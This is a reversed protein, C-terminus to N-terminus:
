IGLPQWVYPFLKGAQEPTLEAGALQAARALVPDRGAALDAATPLVVEDPTVGVHEISKGDKMLLDDATIEFGYSVISDVGQQYPYLRAEMVQGSSRDGIITGRGELQVVRAFIEAASASGNDVLVILKGNFGYSGKSKSSIAKTNKRGVQDYLKVDHDFLFGLMFQLTDVSGGPNGRLDLVVAKHKRALGFMNDVQNYDDFFEPIKWILVDGDEAYRDLAADYLGEEQRQLQFYVGAGGGFIDLIKAENWTKSDVQVHRSNNQPDLLDFNSEPVPSLVNFYYLMWEYNTHTVAVGDRTVVQDGVHLKAAADSGPRLHTVYSKDGIMEITYGYDFQGVRSPPLFHTHSDKLTNVFDAVYTFAQRNSQSALIKAQYQSYVSELDVGHFKPDYYYKQLAEKADKLMQLDAQKDRADSFQRAFLRAAPVIVFFAATILCVLIMRKRPM